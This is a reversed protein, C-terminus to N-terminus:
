ECRERLWRIDERCQETVTNVTTNCKTEEMSVREELYDIRDQMTKTGMLDLGNVAAGSGGAGIGLAALFPGYKKLLEDM